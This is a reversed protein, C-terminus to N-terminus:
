RKEAAWRSLQHDNTEGMKRQVVRRQADIVLTFPLGGVRNGLQRSLEIGELGIMGVPFSVPARQLYDRVPPLKDAALGLVQWGRGGQAQQFRELAPMERLCPPCWTAWFNVILARGSFDAPSWSTGDPADFRSRWFAAEAESSANDQPRQRWAAVGAGGAAALAAVGAAWLWHRRQPSM